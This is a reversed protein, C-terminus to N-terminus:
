RSAHASRRHRAIGYWIGIIITIGIISLLIVGFSSLIVIRQSNSYPTDNITMTREVTYIGIPPIDRWTSTVARTTDPLLALEHSEDFVLTAFLTTVRARYNIIQDVNGTNTAKGTIDLTSRVSFSPLKDFAASNTEVATGSARAFLKMGVRKQAVIMGKDTNVSEAFVAAFQGGDPISAPTTITYPIDLTQNAALTYQPAEFSIWRSIQTRATEKTLLPEYQENKVGYPTAYVKITLPENGSNVVTLTRTYTQNAKISLNDQTPSITIDSSSSASTPTAVALAIFITAM